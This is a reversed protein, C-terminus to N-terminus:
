ITDQLMDQLTGQQTNCIDPLMNQIMDRVTNGITHRGDDRMSHGIVRGVIDLRITDQM